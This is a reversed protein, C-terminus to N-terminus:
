WSVTLSLAFYRGVASANQPDFDVNQGGTFLSDPVRPPDTNFLNSVSLALNAESGGDSKLAYGLQADLTTWAGVTAQPQPTGVFLIDEGSVRNVFGTANWAVGRWGLSGRMKFAPPNFVTGAIAEPASGALVRADFRLWTGSWSATFGGLASAWQYSMSANIGHIVNASINQNTDELLAAVNSPLYPTGSFNNVNAIGGAATIAANQEAVTPDLTVFANPAALAQVLNILPTGVRNTYRIYYYTTEANIQGPVRALDPAVQMTTTFSHSTEPGLHRNGGYQLMVASGPAAGPFLASSLLVAGVPDYLEFLTPARFSKGYTAKLKAQRIPTYVLGLMPNTTSGFDSYHSHRIAATLDLSQLGVRTDSYPVLPLNLELYADVVRRGGMQPTGNNGEVDFNERRFGVGLAVTAAGTPLTVVSGSGYIDVGLLANQLAEVTPSGCPCPLFSIYRIQNFGGDTVDIGISRDGSGQFTVGANSAFEDVHSPFSEFPITYFATRHTYLGLAHTEIGDTLDYHVSSLVSESQLRPELLQSPGAASSIERQDARLPDAKNFEAAFLVSGESFTRGFLQSYRQTFGGGGQTWGVYGATEEGNYHRRLVVNVVGAVADSGYIASSGGTLIDVRQVAVVPVMSMDLSSSAFIGAGSARHGDILTLTASNGIGFINISSTGTGMDGPNFPSSAGVDVAGPNIGGAFVTPSTRLVDAITPLGTQLIETRTISTVPYAPAVGTIHTGTVVVERLSPAAHKKFTSSIPPDPVTVPDIESLAPAPKTHKTTTVRHVAQASVPSVRTSEQIQSERVISVADSDVYRYKLGTGSLMGVLVQDATLTGSVGTTRLNKVDATLYLVQMHRARAFDQLAQGLPQPAIRTQIRNRVTTSNQAFCQEILALFTVAAVVATRM